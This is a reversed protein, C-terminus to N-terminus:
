SHFIRQQKSISLLIYIGRSMIQKERIGECSRSRQAFLKECAFLHFPFVFKVKKQWRIKESQKPKAPLAVKRLVRERVALSIYTKWPVTSTQAFCNYVDSSTIQYAQLNM